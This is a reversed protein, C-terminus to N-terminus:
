FFICVEDVLFFFVPPMYRSTATILCKSVTGSALLPKSRWPSNSLLNFIAQTGRCLIKRVGFQWWFSDYFPLPFPVPPSQVVFLEAGLEVVRSSLSAVPSCWWTVQCQMTSFYFFTTVKKLNQREVKLFSYFVVFWFNWFNLLRGVKYIKSFLFYM